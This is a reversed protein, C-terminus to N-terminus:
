YKATEVHVLREEVSTLREHTTSMTNEIDALKNRTEHRHDSLDKSLDDLAKRFASGDGNELQAKLYTKNKFSAFGALIAIVITPGYTQIINQIEVTSM